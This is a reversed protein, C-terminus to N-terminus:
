NVKPGGDPSPGAGSASKQIVSIQGNEELIAYRVKEIDVIGSRRLAAQLDEMAIHERAMREQFVKGNHVLLTPEGAMVRRLSKSRSTFAVLGYNLALIV